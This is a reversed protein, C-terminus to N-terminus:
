SLGKKQPYKIAKERFTKITEEWAWWPYVKKMFENEKSNEWAM